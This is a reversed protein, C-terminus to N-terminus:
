AVRLSPQNGALNRWTKKEDPGLYKNAQMLRNFHLNIYANQLSFKMQILHDLNIPRVLELPLTREEGSIVNVVRLRKPMVEKIRFVGHVSPELEASTGQHKQPVQHDTVLQNPKFTTINRTSSLQLKKKKKNDHNAAPFEM